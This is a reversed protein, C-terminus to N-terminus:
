KEKEIGRIFASDPDCRMCNELSNYGKTDEYFALRVLTKANEEAVQADKVAKNTYARDWLKNLRPKDADYVKLAAKTKEFSM